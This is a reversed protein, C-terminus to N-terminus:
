DSEKVKYHTDDDSAVYNSCGAKVIINLIKSLYESPLNVLDEVILRVATDRGVKLKSM